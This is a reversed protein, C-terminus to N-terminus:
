RFKDLNGFMTYSPNWSLEVTTTTGHRNKAVIVEAVNVGGNTTPIADNQSADPEDKEKDADYYEDRYLMLVIDADQEISGSERLDALQPRHSKGRAETSRSLQALTIVPVGLDKAMLKLSRTIESVEQVRNDTRSAGKMLQLYDIVVLDVDKLRRVRAKIEPVTILSTDDIYFQCQTLVSTAAAIRKWEEDHIEGTRMKFGEIRAEMALVRQALQEKTMELSFFVVKKMAMVSANRAINLAFSTKGMAPRAGVIILDSKNLGTMVKDLDVFGTTFGKYQDADESSLKKLTDYVNGVIIDGILAPGGTVKGQRINYIKQEASDLLLDASEDSNSAEEVIERGANILTRMYYKERVIKAYSEINETSPVVQSLQFLYNKGGADDYINEKKMAELVILPDIKGGAADINQMISFIAKHQPLYFYDSKVYILAQNICAPEMLISGLVAQESELSYPLNIEELGNYSNTPM